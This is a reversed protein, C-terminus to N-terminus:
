FSGVTLQLGNTSTTSLVTFAPDIELLLMQLYLITGSLTPNNPIALEWHSAGTTTVDIGLYDPM